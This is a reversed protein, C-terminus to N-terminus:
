SELMGYPMYPRTVDNTIIYSIYKIKTIDYWILLIQHM